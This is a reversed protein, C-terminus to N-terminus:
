RFQTFPALGPELPHPEGVAWFSSPVVGVLGATRAMVMISGQTVHGAWTVEEGFVATHKRASRLTEVISEAEKEFTHLTPLSEVCRKRADADAALDELAAPM